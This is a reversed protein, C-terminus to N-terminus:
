QQKSEERNQIAGMFFNGWNFGDVPAVATLASKVQKAVEDQAVEAM